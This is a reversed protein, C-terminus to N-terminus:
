PLGDKFPVKYLRQGRFDYFLESYINLWVQSIKKFYCSNSFLDTQPPSLNQYEPQYQQTLKIAPDSNVTKMSNAKLFICEDSKTYIGQPM